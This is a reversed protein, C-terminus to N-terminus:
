VLELDLDHALQDAVAHLDVLERNIIFRHRLDVCRHIHTSCYFLLFFLKCCLESTLNTNQANFIYM